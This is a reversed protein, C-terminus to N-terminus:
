AVNLNSSSGLANQEKRRARARTLVTRLYDNSEVGLLQAVYDRAVDSPQTRPLLLKARVEEPISLDKKKIKPLAEEYYTLFKDELEPTWKVNHAGGWQGQGEGNGNSQESGDRM